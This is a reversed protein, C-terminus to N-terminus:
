YHWHCAREEGRRNWCTTLLGHCGSDAFYKLHNVTMKLLIFHVLEHLQATKCSILIKHLGKDSILIYIHSSNDLNIEM